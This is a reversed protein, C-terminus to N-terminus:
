QLYELEQIELRSLVDDDEEEELLVVVTEEVM